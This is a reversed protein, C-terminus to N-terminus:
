DLAKNVYGLLEIVKKPSQENPKIRKAFKKAEALKAKNAKKEEASTDQTADRKAEEKLPEMLNKQKLFFLIEAKTFEPVNGAELKAGGPADTKVNALEQIAEEVSMSGTLAQMIAEAKMADNVKAM